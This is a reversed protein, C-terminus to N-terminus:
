ILSNFANSSHYLIHSHQDLPPSARCIPLCDHTQHRVPRADCVEVTKGSILERCSFCVRLYSASLSVLHLHCLMSIAASCAANTHARAAFLHHNPSSICPTYLQPNLVLPFVLSSRSLPQELPSDLVYASYLPHRAGNCIFFPSLPLVNVLM